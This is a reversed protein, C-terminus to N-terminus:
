DIPAHFTLPEFVRGAARPDWSLRVGRGCSDVCHCRTVTGSGGRGDRVRRAVGNSPCLSPCCVRGRGHITARILDSRPGPQSRVLSRLIILGAGVTSGTWGTVDRWTMVDMGEVGGMVFVDHWATQHAVHHAAGCRFSWRSGDVGVGFGTDNTWAARGRRRRPTALVARAVDRVLGRQARELSALGLPLTHVRLDRHSASEGRCPEVAVVGSMGLRVVFSRLM